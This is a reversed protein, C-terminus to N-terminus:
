YDSRLLSLIWALGIVQLVIAIALLTWGGPMEAFNRIYDPQWILMYAAVAPGALAILVTGIRSAATSARFQRYYSLRDRIVGALRELTLPLNGGTQRQVMFTAALIRMETLPARRTLSRMAAEMSLGM